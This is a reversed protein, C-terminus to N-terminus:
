PFGPPEGIPEDPKSIETGGTDEIEDSSVSLEPELVGCSSFLILVIILLLYRM